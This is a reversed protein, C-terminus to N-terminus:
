RGREDRGARHEKPHAYPHPAYSEHRPRLKVGGVAKEFARYIEILKDEADYDFV